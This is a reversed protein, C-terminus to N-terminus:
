LGETRGRREDVGQVAHRRWQQPPSRERVRGLRLSGQLAGAHTPQQQRAQSPYHVPQPLRRRHTADAPSAPVQRVHSPRVPPQAPSGRPAGDPAPVPHPKCQDNRPSGGPRSIFTINLCNSLVFTKINRMAFLQNMNNSHAHLSTFKM